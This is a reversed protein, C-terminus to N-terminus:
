AKVLSSFSPGILCVYVTPSINSVFQYDKFNAVIKKAFAQANKEFETVEKSDDGHKKKLADKVAKM